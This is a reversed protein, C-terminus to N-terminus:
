VLYMGYRHIHEVFLEPALEKGSESWEQLQIFFGEMGAPTYTVLLRGLGTNGVYRFAHKVNRPGFITTGPQARFLNEGVQFEFEGEVVHLIEDELTHVHLAPGSGPSNAVGIMSITNNTQEGSLVIVTNEGPTGADSKGDGWMPVIVGQEPMVGKTIKPVSYGRSDFLINNGFMQVKKRFTERESEKLSNQWDERTRWEVYNVVRTGDESCHCNASYFGSQLRLWENGETLVLNFVAQQQEDIVTYTMIETYMDLATNHSYESM